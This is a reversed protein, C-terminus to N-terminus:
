KIFVTIAYAIVASIVANVAFKWNEGPRKELNAIRIDQKDIRGDHANLIKNTNRVEIVLERVEIIFADTRKQDQDIESLRRRFSENEKKISAIDAKLDALERNYEM